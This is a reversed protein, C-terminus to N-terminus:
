HNPRPPLPRSLPELALFRELYEDFSEIDAAEIAAQEALSRESMAAFEGQRRPTLRGDRFGGRHALSQAMAFDFFGEQKARMAALVRASPTAAVDEVKHRQAEVAQSHAHGGIGADMVAALEACGDVLERAWDQARGGMALSLEPRRGEEVVLLQNRWMSESEESSDPPSEALLCLLLFVDVFHMTDADIGVEAFPDLDLCRVEVYEVGRDALAALPRESPRTRRKPRITGYFENEIQLLATSLQRYQGDDDQVGIAEYRPYPRTLASHMTEAYQELTNYSIHLSSQAESQYGLRGMRLSTAHPLYLTGSDWQALGSEGQAFSRCVAPSSGFLYMLLWSHRRFNRILAFYGATVFDQDPSRGQARAIVDWLAAPLSFNYHIGSITQMLRGYRHGLGLRYVTKSRGVNSDGYRGVPITHEPDAICPMSTAWLLEDGIGAHVFAHIDTLEQLCDSASEHVGTILELQAESFDTTVHPHTLASGLALPHPTRALRGAPSVRLSEKEIGRRLRGFESRGDLKGLVEPPVRVPPLSGPM